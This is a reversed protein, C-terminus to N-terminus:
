RGDVAKRTINIELAPEYREGDTEGTECREILQDLKQAIRGGIENATGEGDHLLDGQRWVPGRLEVVSFEYRPAAATSTTEERSSNARADHKPM